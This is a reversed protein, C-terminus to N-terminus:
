WTGLSTKLRFPRSTMSFWKCSQLGAEVSREVLGETLAAYAKSLGKLPTGREPAADKCRERAREGGRQGKLRWTFDM